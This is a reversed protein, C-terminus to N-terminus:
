PTSFSFTPQSPLILISAVVRGDKRGLGMSEVSSKRFYVCVSRERDKIGSQRQESPNNEPIEQNACPILGDNTVAEEASLRSLPLPRIGVVEGNLCCSRFHSAGGLSSM